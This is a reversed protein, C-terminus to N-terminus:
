ELHTAINDNAASIYKIPLHIHVLWIPVEKLEAAARSADSGQVGAIHVTIPQMLISEEYWVKCGIKELRLAGDPDPMKDAKFMWVSKLWYKEKFPGNILEGDEWNLYAFVGLSDMTRELECLDDVLTKDHSIRALTNRIDELGAM